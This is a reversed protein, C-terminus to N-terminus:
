DSITTKKSLIADRVMKIRVKDAGTEITVTDDKINVIKGLIGSRTTVEDGVIIESLMQAMQKKRKKEPRIMMFYVILILFGTSFIMPLMATLPDVPVEDGVGEAVDAAFLM